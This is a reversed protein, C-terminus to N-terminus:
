GVVTSALLAVAALASVGVIARELRPGEVKQRLGGSIWFGLLAAPVLSGASRLDDSQIEGTVTFGVLSMLLGGFFIAGMTSRVEPGSRERYILALPPGGIGAATGSVGSTFGATSQTFRTFPISWGRLIAAVGILVGVGIAISLTRTPLNKLLWLGVVVGPLRGLLVWGVGHLNLHTRERLLSSSAMALATLQIVVPVLDPEIIRLLPVGLIAYGFGVTGQLAAACCLVGFALTWELGTLVPGTDGSNPSIGDSPANAADSNTSRSVALIPGHRQPDTDASRPVQPIKCGLLLAIAHCVDGVRADIVYEGGIM